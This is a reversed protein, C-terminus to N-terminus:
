FVINNWFHEPHTLIWDHGMDKLVILKSNKILKKLEKGYSLPTMLDKEGWLILTDAKIKSAEKRAELYHAVLGLRFNLIPSEAARLFDKVNNAFGRKTHEKLLNKFGKVISESYYVGKSDVLLLRKLNKSNISAFHLALGGGLSHGLLHINKLNYKNLYETFRAMFFDIGKYPMLYKYSPVHIDWNSPALSILRHYSDRDRTWGGLIVLNEKTIIKSM